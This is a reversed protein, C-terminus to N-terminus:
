TALARRRTGTTAARRAPEPGAAPSASTDAKLEAEHAIRDMAHDLTGTALLLGTARALLRGLRSTPPHISILADLACGARIPKLTYDVLIDVPGRAHLHLRGPDAALTHLNFRVRAGLLRGSVRTTTGARLRAGDSTDLSFPIPSWRACADPDTLTDIVHQPTARVTTRSRWTNTTTM